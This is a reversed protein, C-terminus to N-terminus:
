SGTTRRAYVALYVLELPALVVGIAGFLVFSPDIDWRGLFSAAALVVLTFVAGPALHLVILRTLSYQEPVASVRPVDSRQLQGQQPLTVM